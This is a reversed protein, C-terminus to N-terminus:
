VLQLDKTCVVSADDRKVTNCRHHALRVNDWTHTGGKSVPLVHDISPYSEGVIFHEKDCRKYDNYSTVGECLHCVGKDREHLRKLTISSDVKGNMALRKRRNLDRLRNYKRKSCVKSCYKMNISGGVFVEECEACKAVLQLCREIDLRIGDILKERTRIAIRITKILNSRSEKIEACGSCNIPRVKRVLQASVESVTGCAMCELDIYGDSHVYGGVYKYRGTFHKQLNKKINNIVNVPNIRTDGIFGGLGSRRCYAGISDKSRNLVRAIENYGKGEERMQKIVEKEKEDYAGKRM